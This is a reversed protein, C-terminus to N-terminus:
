LSPLSMIDMTESCTLLGPCCCSSEKETVNSSNEVDDEEADTDENCIACPLCVEKTTTGLPPLESYVVTSKETVTPGHCEDKLEEDITDDALASCLSNGLTKACVPYLKGLVLNEATAVSNTLGGLTHFPLYVLDAVSLM